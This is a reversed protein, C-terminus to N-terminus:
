SGRKRLLWFLLLCWLPLLPSFFRVPGFLLGARGRGLRLSRGSFLAAPPVLPTHGCLLAGLPSRRRRFRLAAGTPTLLRVNRTFRGGTRRGARLLLRPLLASSPLVRTACVRLCRRVSSRYGCCRRVSSRYGCSRRTSSRYRRSRWICSWCDRGCGALLVRRSIRPGRDLLRIRLLHLLDLRLVCTEARLRSRVPNGRDREALAISNFSAIAPLTRLVFYESRIMRFPVVLTPIPRMVVADLQDTATVIIPVVAVPIRCPTVTRLGLIISVISRDIHPM